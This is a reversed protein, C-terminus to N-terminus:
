ASEFERRAISMLVDANRVDVHKTLAGMATEYEGDALVEALGDILAAAVAHLVDFKGHDATGHGGPVGAGKGGKRRTRGGLLMFVDWVRMLAEFPLAYNFLTLYWRMSYVMPDVGMAELHTRMPNRALWGHEFGQVTNKLNEFGPAFLEALGRDKWLRYACVFAEEEPFYTLLTAAVTAMGQTYGTDPFELALARLVYFLFRQGGKREVRFLVHDGATRPVDLHIQQDDACNEEKHQRYRTILEEDSETSGTRPTLFDHWAQARWVEPIGKWVRDQLKRSDHDFTYLQGGGMLGRKPNTRNQVPIAMKRWKEVRLRETKINPNASPSSPPFRPPPLLM